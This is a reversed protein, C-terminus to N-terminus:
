NLGITDIPLCEQLPSNEHASGVDDRAPARGRAAFGAPPGVPM